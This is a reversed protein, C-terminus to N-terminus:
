LMFASPSLGRRRLLAYEHTRGKNIRSFATDFDYGSRRPALDHLFLDLAAFYRKNAGKPIRLVYDSAYLPTVLGEIEPNLWKIDELSCGTFVAIDRLDTSKEVKIEDYCFMKRYNATFGYQEPNRAITIAALLKPVYNRTEQRLARSTYIDPFSEESRLLLRQIKGAGANYSALALHWSGFGDHLDRLYAAAAHTAKVPDRREDVWQNMTLGYERATDSMFQWPGVARSRSIADMRLGSEIMAVYVLDEPLDNEQFIKKMLPIFRASRNLWNQLLQKGSTAFYHIQANVRDDTLLPDEPSALLEETYLTSAAILSSSSPKTIEVPGTGRIDTLAVLDGGSVPQEAPSTDPMSLSVAILLM